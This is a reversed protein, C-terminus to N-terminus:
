PNALREFDPDNRLSEFAPDIKLYELDKYGQKRAKNLWEFASEKQGYFAYTRAVNYSVRPDNPKARAEKEASEIRAARKEIAGKNKEAIELNKRAMSNGSEIQLATKFETIASDYLGKKDYLVGLNNHAFFNRPQADIAARYAEIAEETQNMKEYAYALNLRAPFYKADLSIAKQFQAIAAELKGQEVLRAGASNCEVANDAAASASNWGLFLGWLVVGGVLSKM